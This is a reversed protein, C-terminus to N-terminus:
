GCRADLTLEPNVVELTLPLCPTIVTVLADYFWGYTSVPKIVDGPGAGQANGGKINDDGGYWGYTSILKLNGGAM